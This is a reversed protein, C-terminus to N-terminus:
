RAALVRGVVAVLDAPRYPKPLVATPVDQPGAGAPEDYHTGTTLVVRSDARLRRLKALVEWGTLGPLNVDLVVVAVRERDRFLTVASPGDAAGLVVYGARELVMRAMVLITPEDEVVLVVPRSAPTGAPNSM